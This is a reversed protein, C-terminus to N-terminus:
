MERAVRIGFGSSRYNEIAVTDHPAPAWNRNASRMHEAKDLYTGGRAVRHRCDPVDHASGDAPLGLYSPAHCDQVWQWVNGKTDHLGFANAPFATVPSTYEWQDRGEVRPACCKEMGHNAHDYSPADGWYTPSTTGARTVYEFEAETLLRYRKGTREGLWRAYDQADAWTVCVVPHDDGQPFGPDSWNADKKAYACPDPSIPRQTAEVFALYQARTVPFKGVALIPISVQRVPGEDDGRGVESDPSGMVFSGAPIVVLAPCWAAGDCDNFEHGAPPPTAAQASADQRTGTDRQNCAICSCILLAAVSLLVPKMHM